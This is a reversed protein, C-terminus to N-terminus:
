AVFFRKITKCVFDVMDDTMEPYIPLSLIEAAQKEAVPFDGKKYGLHAYAKQLHIPIPYHLGTAISKEKLFGKLKDRKDAPVRVVFLHYIHYADASEVPCIVEKLDALLSRYLKAIERRRANWSELYKLKVLLVAAQIEEMRYNHGIIEHVYREVSGHGRMRLMKQYLEEDNTSIGGAEGYAGLNKGPFFSFAAAKGFNGVTKGEFRTLHAQCADEFVLLGHRSAIDSIADMNVPQGYLHVPLVAGTLPTIKEEVGGIDINYSVPDNDVFVPTAGCLSVGEATAIFTNVPVIVEDGSGIGSAWLMLHVADTGSSTAIFLKAGLAAAFAKEFLDVYKGCIFASHEFIDAFFADIEPKIRLYQSKLDLFPVNM